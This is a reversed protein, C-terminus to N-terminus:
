RKYLTKRGYVIAEINKYEIRNGFLNEFKRRSNADVINWTSLNDHSKMLRNEVKITMQRNGECYLINITKMEKSQLAEFMRKKNQFDYNSALIKRYDTAYMERYFCMKLSEYNKTLYDSAQEKISSDGRELYELYLNMNCEFDPLQISYFKMPEGSIESVEVQNEINSIEYDPFKIPDEYMGEPTEMKQRLFSFVYQEYKENVEVVIDTFSTYDRKDVKKLYVNFDYSSAMFYFQKREKDYIGIPSAQLSKLPLVEKAHNKIFLYQFRENKYGSDIKVLMQGNGKNFHILMKDGSLFNNLEENGIINM